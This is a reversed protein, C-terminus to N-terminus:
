VETVEDMATLCKGNSKITHDIENYEWNNSEYCFHTEVISLTGEQVRLCRPLKDPYEMKSQIKSGKFIWRQNVAGCTGEGQLYDFIILFSLLVIM